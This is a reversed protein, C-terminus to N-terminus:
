RTTAEAVAKISFFCSRTLHSIPELIRPRPEQIM